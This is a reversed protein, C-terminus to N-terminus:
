LLKKYADKVRGVLALEKETLSNPMGEDAVKLNEDIYAEENMGSLIVTVEPQNWIWRLSWEAPSRKKDAEDWIAQIDKPPAKALSGGRLPEMVVVGLGKSAAYKLGEKGAQNTEDLYNYQMQCFDWNYEDIIQKFEVGGVHASFGINRIRGDAKAKQVFDDMGMEKMKKMDSLYVGHILYYDIHDTQLKQLQVDLLKDMDERKKVQFPPMKTALKVKERYGDALAKGVIVESGPYIFATDLYNVGHDIAYRVQRIAREEDTGRGKKPFRMCGFGLISLEDGTSKMTRYQM